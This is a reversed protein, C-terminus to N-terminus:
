RIVYVLFHRDLSIIVDPGVVYGAPLITQAGIEAARVLMVFRPVAFALGRAVILSFREMLFNRDYSIFLWVRHRHETETRPFTGNPSFAFNSIMIRYSLYQLLTLSVVVCDAVLIM